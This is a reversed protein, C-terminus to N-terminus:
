GAFERRIAPYEDAFKPNVQRVKGLVADAKEPKGAGELALALNMQNFMKLIAPGQGWYLLM